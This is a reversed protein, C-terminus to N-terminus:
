QGAEPDTLVGSEELGEAADLMESTRAASKEVWKLSEQIKELSMPHNKQTQIFEQRKTAAQKLHADLAATQEPDLLKVFQDHFEPSELPSVGRSINLGTGGFSMSLYGPIAKLRDALSSRLRNYEDIDGQGQGQGQACADSALLFKMTEAPSSEVVKFAEDARDASQNMYNTFLELVKRSQADSFAIGADMLDLHMLLRDNTMATKTLEKNMMRMTRTDIRLLNISTAAIKRAQKTKAEGYRAVLEQDKEKAASGPIPKSLAGGGDPSAAHETGPATARADNGRNIIIIIAGALLLLSITIITSKRNM